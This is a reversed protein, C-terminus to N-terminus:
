AILERRRRGRIARSHNRIGGAFMSDFRHRFGCGAQFGQDPPRCLKCAGASPFYEADGAGGASPFRGQRRLEDCRESGVAGDQYGHVPEVEGVGQQDFASESLDFSGYLGEVVGTVCGQEFADSVLLGRFGDVCRLRSSGM